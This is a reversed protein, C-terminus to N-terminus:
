IRPFVLSKAPKEDIIKGGWIQLFGKLDCYGGHGGIGVAEGRELMPVMGKAKLRPFEAGMEVYKKFDAPTELVLRWEQSPPHSGTQSTQIKVYKM